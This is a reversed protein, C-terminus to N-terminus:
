LIYTKRYFRRHNILNYREFKMYKKLGDVYIKHNNKEVEEHLYFMNHKIKQKIFLKWIEKMKRLNKYQRNHLSLFLANQNKKNRLNIDINSHKLLLPVMNNTSAYFLMSIAYMLITYGNEDQLNVNIKPQKLLIKIIRNFIYFETRRSALILITSGRINQLNIDINSHNLLLIVIDEILNINTNKLALMLATMGEKEQLNVDINPHELLMKVISTTTSYRSALMLITWDEKYKINVDINPHELLIKVTKETSSTNSNKIALLLSTSDYVNQSNIDINSCELLLKVIKNSSFKNSFLCSFMLLNLSQSVDKGHFIMIQNIDIMDFLGYNIVKKMLKYKKYAFYLLINNKKDFDYAYYGIEKPSKLFNEFHEEDDFYIQSNNKIILECIYKINEM